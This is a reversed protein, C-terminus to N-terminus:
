WFFGDVFFGSLLTWSVLVQLRSDACEPTWLFRVHISLSFVKFRALHFFWHLAACGPLLPGRKGVLTGVLGHGCLACGGGPAPPAAGQPPRPRAGWAEASFNM